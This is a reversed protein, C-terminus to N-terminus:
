QFKIEVEKYLVCIFLSLLSCSLFCFSSTLSSSIPPAHQVCPSFIFAHLTETRVASPVTSPLRVRLNSSIVLISRPSISHLSISKIWIASSLSWHSPRRFVTSFRRAGYCTPFNKLLQTVAEGLIVWRCRTIHTYISLSLPLLTRCDTCESQMRTDWIRQQM